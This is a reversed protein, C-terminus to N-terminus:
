DAAGTLEGVIVSTMSISGMVARDNFFSAREPGDQLALVYLLPLYHEPTPVAQRADDGLEDYRILADHDRAEIRSKVERDFRAAWDFGDGRRYDLLQLNHVINGSGLILVGQDRLPALRQALEYHFSAPENTDLGLQVVPVDARPYMPRLVSWSGHDLGRRADLRAGWPALLNAATQALEPDGPAPYQVAFLEPPFGYFDHITEPRAAATLAVGRTEWHASICLIARPRPLHSALGVWARRFANDEIANMPTGHGLFIAPMRTSM